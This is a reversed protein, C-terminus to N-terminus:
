SKKVIKKMKDMNSAIVNFDDQEAQTYQNPTENKADKTVDAVVEVHGINNGDLDKIHNTVTEIGIKWDDSCQKGIVEDRTKGLLSLTAKNMFTVNGNMDTATIPTQHLADILCEFWLTKEKFLKQSQETELLLEKDETIDQIGGVTKIPNGDKDRFTQGYDHYYGLEGNKKYMRYEVNYPTQGTKDVIHKEFAANVKDVDDPHIRNSWSSLSNPFDNEDTYGLLKRFENSWVFANQPNVPDNKIVSLNWTAIKASQMIIALQHLQEKEKTIDQIGGAVRIAYGQADRTTEGFAKFWGYEGNKKLLRYELDYPTKGTRDLLHAAFANITREKDQPHLKDSWSSLVNPFDTEDTYGLLNRFADSWTFANNPNVPDGKVIMMDWLGILAANMTIDLKLLKDKIEEQQVRNEEQLEEKMQRLEQEQDHFALLLGSKLVGDKNCIPMYRQRITMKKNAANIQQVDEYLKGNALHRMAQNSADSGMFKSLHNGVFVSKDLGFLNCLNQNVNTIVGLSSFEVVNNTAFIGEHFQEMLRKSEESAVQTEQMKALIENLEIERRRSEEQTAQMEEMNQRLEEETNVMEEAQLKTQELLRNTRINVNVTSITAAISESVKQVFDLQHPEFPKFSALEIVGFIRDNVKLPCILMARPNADGLGSTITIYNNPVNTMYIPEGELYCTGVLGEGPRIKKSIYKKRDYAYCAKM